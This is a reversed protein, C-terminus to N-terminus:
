NKLFIYAVGVGAATFAAAAVYKSTNSKPTTAEAVVEKVTAVIPAVAEAVTGTAEEEEELAPLMQRAGRDEVIM